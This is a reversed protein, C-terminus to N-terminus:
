NQVLYSRFPLFYVSFNRSKRSSIKTLKIAGCSDELYQNEKDPAFMLSVCLQYYEGEGDPYQRILDYYFFGEGTFDYVGYEHLLLDEEISTKCMKQFVDIIEDVTDNISINNQLYELLSM